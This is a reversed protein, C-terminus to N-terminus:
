LRGYVTELTAWETDDCRLNLPRSLRHSFAVECTYVSNESVKVMQSSVIELYIGLEFGLM